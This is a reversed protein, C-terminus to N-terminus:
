AERHNDQIINLYCEHTLAIHVKRKASMSSYGIMDEVEKVTNGAAMVTKARNIAVIM